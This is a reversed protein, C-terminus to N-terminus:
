RKFLDTNPNELVIASTNPPDYMTKSRVMVQRENICLVDQDQIGIPSIKFFLFVLHKLAQLEFRYYHFQRVLDKHVNMIKMDQSFIIAQGM